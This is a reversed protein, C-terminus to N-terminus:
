AKQKFICKCSVEVSETKLAKPIQFQANTGIVTLFGWMQEELGSSRIKIQKDASGDKVYM